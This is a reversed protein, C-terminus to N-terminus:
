EHEAKRPEPTTAGETPGEMEDEITVVINAFSARAGQGFLREQM